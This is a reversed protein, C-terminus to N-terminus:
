RHLVRTFQFFIHDILTASHDTIRTPKTIMPQFSLSNMTNIYEETLHHSEYNLLDINFDGMIVCHKNEKSIKDITAYFENLFLTLDSKPHRYFVSCLFIKGSSDKVEIWISEYSNSTTNLDDRESFKLKNNIYFGVGGAASQSPQALFSYNNISTNSYTDKGVQFKIESLGIISFDFNLNNILDVLNDHNAQLSRINCHLLSFSNKMSSIDRNDHFDHVKYYSFNSNNSIHSDIDSNNLNPQNSLSSIVEYSSLNELNSKTLKKFCNCATNSNFSLKLHESYSIINFPFLCNRCFM